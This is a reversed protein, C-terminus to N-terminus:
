PRLAEPIQRVASRVASYVVQKKLDVSGSGSARARGEVIAIMTGTRADRLTANVTCAIPQDSARVLAMSVVVRRGVRSADIRGLEGRAAEELTARDVGSSPPPSAIEGLAIKEDAAEAPAAVLPAAALALVLALRRFM